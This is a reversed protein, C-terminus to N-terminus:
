MGEAQMSKDFVRQLHLSFTQLCPPSPHDVPPPPSHISPHPHRSLSPNKLSSTHFSSARLRLPPTAGRQGKNKTPHRREGRPWRATPWSGAPGLFHHYPTKINKRHTISHATTKKPAHCSSDAGYCSSNLPWPSRPQTPEWWFSSRSGFRVCLSVARTVKQYQKNTNTNKKLFRTLCKWTVTKKFNPSSQNVSMPTLVLSKRLVHRSNGLQIIVM